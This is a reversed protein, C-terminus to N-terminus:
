YFTCSRGKLSSQLESEEWFFSGGVMVSHVSDPFRNMSILYSRKHYLALRKLSRDYIPETHGTGRKEPPSGPRIGNNDVSPTPDDARRFENEFISAQDGCGVFGIMAALCNVGGGSRALLSQPPRGGFTPM